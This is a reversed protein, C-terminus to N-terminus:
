PAGHVDCASVPRIKDPSPPNPTDTDTGFDGHEALLPPPLARRPPAGARSQGRPQGGGPPPVDRPWLHIYM